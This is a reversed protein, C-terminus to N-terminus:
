INIVGDRRVAIRLGFPFGLEQYLASCSGLLLVLLLNLFGSISSGLKLGPTFFFGRFSGGSGAICLLLSHQVVCHDRRCLFSGV